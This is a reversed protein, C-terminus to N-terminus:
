EIGLRAKEAKSLNSRHAKWALEISERLTEVHQYDADKLKHQEQELVATLIDMEYKLTGVLGSRILADLQKTAM